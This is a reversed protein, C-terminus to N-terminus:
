YKRNRYCDTCYVPRGETPKFPVTCDKGCEACKAPHREQSGRDQRFGGSQRREM